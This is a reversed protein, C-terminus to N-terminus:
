QAWCWFYRCCGSQQAVSFCVLALAVVPMQRWSETVWGRNVCEVFLRGGIFSLGVGVAVGICIVQAVLKLALMASGGEVGSGTALALFLLLFPVCIGDNLGSEINLGGRIYAPVSPKTVVAAGLAADTPALMTALIAAELLTLGGFLFVAVGFGLLITLPLGFLLLRQPIHYSHRLVKLDANAADTFLIIALTV